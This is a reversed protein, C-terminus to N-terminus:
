NMRTQLARMRTCRRRTTAYSHDPTKPTCGTLFAAAFGFASLGVVLRTRRSLREAATTRAEQGTKM